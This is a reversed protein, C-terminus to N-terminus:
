KKKGKSNEKALEQEAQKKAKEKDAAVWDLKGLGPQRMTLGIKPEEGKYSIAVIRAMCKDAKVLNKNGDKGTLVGSDSFSVFDDMTQSIHIMGRIAGMSIFAGFNTIEEITGYVLEQLEPKFVILKFVSEYYAAGDGPIIIGEKVDLVELVAVVTGIDKDQFGSYSEELQTRVAEDTSMGFKNPEVRVHDTVLVEYFM